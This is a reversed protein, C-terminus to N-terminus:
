VGSGASPRFGLKEVASAIGEDYVQSMEPTFWMAVFASDSEATALDEALAILGRVPLEIDAFGDLTLNFEIVGQEAWYKLM